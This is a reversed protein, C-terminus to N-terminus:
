NENRRKLICLLGGKPRLTLNEEYKIEDQGPCLSLEFQQLLRAMLVRAEFQAFTQGICTRPGFSFPFYVSQPIADKTEPSFRDPNFKYPDKWSDPHHHMVFNSMNITTGAPFIYGGIDEDKATTRNTGGAPPHLRLGEKLTQSLFQLNGLDKYEVFQRSGLVARIEQNVREEIDPHRLLEHLTFSLQNSTTEQGAVFFTFFEDIMDEITISPEKAKVSLIHALIDPPTDEGRLIAEQRELIVKRGFDRIFKGAKIVSRQYPFTTVSIRWFPMRLCDHMGKLSKSISSPFPSNADQVADLDVNFAVKGIVDLTVRAFEDAMDVITKGDAMKDLKELFLDCSENFSTMLNMLYKRHFAPNLLARRKQWADHDVQTLLGRGMMRYGFPYGVNIYGFPNKPLNLTILCKRILEPDSVFTIPRHFIWLLIVPGHIRNLEIVMEPFIQGKAIGRKIYPLNGTFFSDRKPGPFHSYKWHLYALYISFASFLIALLAAISIVSWLMVTGITAM